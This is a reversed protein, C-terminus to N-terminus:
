TTSYISKPLQVAFKHYIQSLRARFVPRASSCEVDYLSSCLLVCEETHLERRSDGSGTVNGRYCWTVGKILMVLLVRRVVGVSGISRVEGNGFWKGNFVGKNNEELGLEKLFTYKPNNILFSSSSMARLLFHQTRPASALLRTLLPAMITGPRGAALHTTQWVTGM